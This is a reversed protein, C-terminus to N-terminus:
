DCSIRNPNTQAVEIFDDRPIIFRHSPIQGASPIAWHSITDRVDLAYFRPTYVANLVGRNM